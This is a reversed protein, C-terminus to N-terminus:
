ALIYTNYEKVRRAKLTLNVKGGSKTWMLFAEKLQDGTVRANVLRQVTSGKYGATGINYALSVLANFQHQNIDDRTTSYVALEYPRALLLFQRYAEAVSALPRDQMTVKKGTEPYYTMGIGITSIGVSDKYPHLVCGEFDAILKIGANDLTTIEKM